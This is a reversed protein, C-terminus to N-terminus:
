RAIHAELERALRPDLTRLAEYQARAGERDGVTVYALALRYRVQALNSATSVARELEAAAADYQGLNFLAVGLNAHCVACSPDSDLATSWLSLSNRWVHVQSWTLAALAILWLAIAATAAQAVLPRLRGDGAARLLMAVAGGVLMAFGVCSLYSYRDTTIQYGTHFMGSVPLLMTVYAIWVALGAPWRTRAAVLAGTVVLVVVASIVFRPALPDIAPLAYLPSLDTPMLTRWGYSVINYAALAVRAAVSLSESSTLDRHIARFAIATFVAAPVLYLVKERLVQRREPSGPAGLRRLPYVDLVLLVVPLTAVISKSGLALVYCGLSVALWRRRASPERDCSTLYALLTLLFFFGSLVDRRETIWAVSEVRLPHLAFFLAAAAAGARIALGTFAVRSLLFAAVLYFLGANAAHLLLSTLHYGCPKMGWLVYDLSLTMWTVPIWQGGRITSVATRLQHAGLGRYDPNMLLNLDDDWVFGNLLAPSFVALTIAAITAALLWSRTM